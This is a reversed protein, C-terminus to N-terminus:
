LQFGIVRVLGEGLDRLWSPPRAAYRPSQAARRLVWDALWAIEDRGYFAVMLEFNLFLSRGDLNASGCLALTDDLIVAKAHIMGPFLFIEAGAAGLDRLARGRAWDALRHNSQAPVLITVRVGRRCAMRWAMLLPEDPVFYPTVAVIRKRAHWAAALLLAYLNDEPYDPGSAVLQAPAPGAAAGAAPAPEFPAGGAANWDRSFLLEAEAALAGDVDFSLDDWPAGTGDHTFYEEAFNRGGSWFVSGDCVVLKRHYRLNIYPNPIRRLLAIWRVAIGATRLTSLQARACRLRALGDLLVCIEVGDGARRALAAVLADGVADRGLIFTSLVIRRQAADIMALLARQAEAGDAHLRISRNGAAPALALGALLADAWPPGHCISAPSPPRAPHRPRALKSAGFLLFLPIGLYPLVAITVVWALAAAPHRHQQRVRTAVVYLLLGALVIAAHALAPLAAPYGTTAALM